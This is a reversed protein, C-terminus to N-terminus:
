DLLRDFQDKATQRHPGGKKENQGVDFCTKIARCKSLVYRESQKYCDTDGQEEQQSQEGSCGGQLIQPM